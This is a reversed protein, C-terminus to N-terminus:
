RRYLYRFLFLYFYIYIYIFIYILGNEHYPTANHVRPKCMNDHNCTGEQVDAYIYELYVPRNPDVLNLTSYLVLRKFGCKLFFSRRYQTHPTHLRTVQALAPYLVLM